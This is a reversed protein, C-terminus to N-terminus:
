FGKAYSRRMRARASDDERLALQKLKEKRLEPFLKEFEEATGVGNALFAAKLDMKLSAEAQEHRRKEGDKIRQQSREFAALATERRIEKKEEPDSSGNIERIIKDLESKTM